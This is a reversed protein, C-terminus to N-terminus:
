IADRGCWPCTAGRKGAKRRQMYARVIAALATSRPEEGRIADLLALVDPPLSVSLKPIARSAM